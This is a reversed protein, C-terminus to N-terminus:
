TTSWTPSRTMIADVSAVSSTGTAGIFALSALPPAYPADGNSSLYPSFVYHATAILGLGAALYTKNNM